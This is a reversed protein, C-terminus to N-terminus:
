VMSWSRCLPPARERVAARRLAALLFCGLAACLFVLCAFIWGRWVAAYIGTAVGAFAAFLAARAASHAYLAAILLWAIYLPMVVNWVDNDSGISRVLYIPDLSITVAAVIAATNGGV